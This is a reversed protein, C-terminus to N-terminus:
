CYFEGLYQGNSALNWYPRFSVAEVLSIFLTRAAVLPLRHSLHTAANNPQSRM